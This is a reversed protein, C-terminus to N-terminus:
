THVGWVGSLLLRQKNSCVKVFVFSLFGVKNAGDFLDHGGDFIQFEPFSPDDYPFYYVLDDEVPPYLHDVGDYIYYYFHEVLPAIDSRALASIIYSVYTSSLDTSALPLEWGIDM